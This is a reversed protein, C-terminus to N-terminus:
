DHKPAIIYMKLHSKPCSTKDFKNLTPMKFKPPLRVDLFLSLSDYDMLDEMKRDRSIMEKIKNMRENIKKGNEMAPPDHDDNNEEQNSKSNQFQQVMCNMDERLQIKSAIMTNLLEQTNMPEKINPHEGEEAMTSPAEPKKHSSSDQLDFIPNHHLLLPTEEISLPKLITIPTVLKSSSSSAQTDPKPERQM